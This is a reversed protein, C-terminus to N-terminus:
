KYPVPAYAEDRRGFKYTLALRATHMSPEFDINLLGPISAVTESDFQSFRYEGRLSWGGGLRGEVGAGVFYGSFTGLDFSGLNSGADFEAQTYGATGYWLTAPNSLFGFRGGVSWSHKHDLSANLTGLASFDSSIGSFDYDAFIGMVFTGFQHDYGVLATGFIGQGGIGDASALSGFGPVNVDVDHIVAGAGIGAGLYFGSWSPLAQQVVPAGYAPAPRRYGDALAPPTLLCLAAISGLVINKM